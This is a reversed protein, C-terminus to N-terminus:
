KRERLSSILRRREARAKVFEAAARAALELLVNKRGAPTRAAQLLRCLDKDSYQAFPNM